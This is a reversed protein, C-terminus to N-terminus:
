RKSADVTADIAALLRESMLTLERTTVRLQPMLRIVDPRPANVLLGREFAREKIQEAIPLELDFACLLGAGRINSIRIPSSSQLKSLLHRLTAGAERVAHLFDQRDVVELLALACSATLPNGTYTGGHDGRTFAAAQGKALIAGIPVGGGLGKGLTLIDPTVGETQARLFDGTRGVGTQIEDHILLVGKQRTLERLAALYGKPPLVVGAEGQIPEIMVAATRESIAAQVAVVDGYPVKDFGELMPPFAHEWGAKGSAAVCALTRGHFSNHTTIIRHAGPKYLQAWKRALKIAADNAEAGSNTLFVQDMQTSACLKACLDLLPRTFYAPSVTLLQGAQAALARVLEPAAHGLANVAWGQVFDLYERGQEDYLWSGRGHSMVRENRPILRMLHQEGPIV